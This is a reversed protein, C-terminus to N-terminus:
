VKGIDLQRALWLIFIGEEEPSLINKNEDNFPSMALISVIDSFNEEIEQSKEMRTIFIM